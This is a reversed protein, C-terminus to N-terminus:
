SGGSTGLKAPWGRLILKTPSPCHSDFTLVSLDEGKMHLFFEQLIIYNIYHLLHKQIHKLNLDLFTLLNSRFLSCNRSDFNQQQNKWHETTCFAQLKKARPTYCFTRHLRTSFVHFLYLQFLRGSSYSARIGCRSNRNWWFLARVASTRGHWIVQSFLTVNSIWESVTVLFSCFCKGTQYM